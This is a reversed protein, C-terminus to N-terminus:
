SEGLRSCTSSSLSELSTVLPCSWLSISDSHSHEYRGNTNYTTIAGSSAQIPQPSSLLPKQTQLLHLPPTLCLPFYAAPGRRQYPLLSPICEGGGNGALKCRKRSKRGEWGGRKERRGGSAQLCDLSQGTAEDTGGSTNPPVLITTFLLRLLRELLLLSSKEIRMVHQPKEGSM